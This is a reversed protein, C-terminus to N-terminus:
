LKRLNGFVLQPLPCAPAVAALLGAGVPELQAAGWERTSPQWLAAGGVSVSGTEPDQILSRGARQPAMSSSGRAGQALSSRHGTMVSGVSHSPGVRWQAGPGLEIPTMCVNM